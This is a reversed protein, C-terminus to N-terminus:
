DRSIHERALLDAKLETGWRFGGLGGARPLVRHCPIYYAIPNAGVARGVARPGSTLKEALAGYSTTEGSPIETLARWVRQQFPTGILGLRLVPSPDSGDVGGTPPPLHDSLTGTDIETDTETDIETETATDAEGAHALGWQHSLADRWAQGESVLPTAAILHGRWWARMLPGFPMIQRDTAFSQGRLAEKSLSVPEFM